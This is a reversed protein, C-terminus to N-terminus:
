FLLIFLASMLTCKKLVLPDENQCHIRTNSFQNVQMRQKSSRRLSALIALENRKKMRRRAKKLKRQRKLTRKKRKSVRM